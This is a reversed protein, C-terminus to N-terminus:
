SAIQEHARQTLREYRMFYEGIMRRDSFREAAAKRCLLPDLGDCDHIARAIAEVSQVLFGTRGPEVVQTLAGNPFGIVPTGCALAERAVLSSTEAVVSPVLLCRAATLLRRKRAFAIPGIFRRQSDLLPRVEDEFYRLHPGYSFVEGAILLPIDAKKAALIALHVGKEACIRGLILAFRRKGHRASLREIPVGNEIPPLVYQGALRQVTSVGHLWTQPRRPVLADPAYWEIPLHLTALLPAGPRPLYHNYDIGHCHIVDIRHASLVQNIATRYRAWIEARALESITGNLRPMPILKGAVQSGEQAVVISQQGGAVLAQDLASLIQEAGGVSDPSVRAFPFAISLVALNM